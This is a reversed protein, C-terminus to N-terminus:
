VKWCVEVCISPGCALKPLIGTSRRDDGGGFCRDTPGPPDVGRSKEARPEVLTIKMPKPKNLGYVCPFDPKAGKPM